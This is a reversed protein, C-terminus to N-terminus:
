RGGGFTRGFFDGTKWAPRAEADALERAIEYNVDAFRAGAAYDIPLNLDDSPQHYHTALFAPFAKDGGNAFGTMLFVSPVGQEVFRYHDSRTFLGQEPMPDAALGVGARGAARAVAEGLSSRDAGFAIVDRFDYTLVPMDLNVNAVIGAKPVTPNQAFYDAGVLGREEATVALFLVSRRPAKGSEKFTRAVELLTAIGAANDMAGNYISDGNVPKGVGVHDLHASLVITEGKLKPDSGELLGAVNPSKVESIANRQTVSLVGPLAFGATRGEPASAAAWVQDFSQPAGVFLKAAGTVSIVGLGPTAPADHDPRGDPRRWTMNADDWDEAAKAFPFLKERAPTYIAIMGVAGREAALKRKVAGSSWHAREETQLKGPAGALTVVIKGRVDLGAYDDHDHEPMVLGFGAFVLPANATVEASVPSSSPLYDQGFVMPQVVGAPTTLTMTGHAAPAYSVLPVSQLYTGADGAPRLGAKRFQDAVYDAARDYEPTGAARGRMEDSALFEVHAKLAEPSAASQAPGGLLLAGALAAVFTRM